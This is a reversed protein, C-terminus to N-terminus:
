PKVLIVHFDTAGIHADGVLRNPLVGFPLQDLFIPNEQHFRLVAQTTDWTGAFTLDGTPSTIAGQTTGNPNVTINFRLGEAFRDITGGANTTTFATATWVGELTPPPPPNYPGTSDYCAILSSAAALSLLLKTM